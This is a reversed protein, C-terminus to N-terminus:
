RAPQRMMSQKLASASWLPIVIQIALQAPICFFGIIVTILLSIVIYALANYVLWGLLRLVGDQTRGIYMYGIGLLGFFGLVLELVFATNPDKIAAAPGYYMPAPRQEGQTAPVEGQSGIFANSPSGTSQPTVPALNQGAVPTGCGPCFRHQEVNAYGCEPCHM